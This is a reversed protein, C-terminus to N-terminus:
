LIVQWVLSSLRACGAIAMPARGHLLLQHVVIYSYTLIYHGSPSMRPLPVVKNNVIDVPNAHFYKDFKLYFLSFSYHEFALVLIM